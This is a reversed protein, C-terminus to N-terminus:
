IKACLTALLADRTDLDLLSWGGWYLLDSGLVLDFPPNLDQVREGWVHARVEATGPVGEGGWPPRSLLPRNRAVNAELHPVVSPLDSLTVHAGLAAAGIGLVGTGSGVELVRKGALFASGRVRDFCEALILTVPWVVGSTPDEQEEGWGGPVVGDGPRIDVEVDLGWIRQRSNLNPFRVDGSEEGVGEVGAGSQGHDFMM